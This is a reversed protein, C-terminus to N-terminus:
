ARSEHIRMFILYVPPLSSPLLLRKSGFTESTFKGKGVFSAEQYKRLGYLKIIIQEKSVTENM